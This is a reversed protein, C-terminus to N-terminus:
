RIVLDNGRHTELRKGTRDLATVTVRWMGKGIGLAARDKPTLVLSHKTAGPGVKIGGLQYEIPKPIDSRTFILVATLEDEADGRNDVTFRLTFDEQADIVASMAPPGPLSLQFSGITLINGPYSGMREGAGDFASATVLWAGPGVGLERRKQANLSVVHKAGGPPVLLDRVYYEIGRTDGPRTFVLLATVPSQTDGDNSFEFPVDLTAERGITAPLSPRRPLTSKATGYSFPNGSLPEGAPLDREDYLAFTIAYRGPVVKAAAFDEATLVIHTTTVGPAVKLKFPREKTFTTAPPTFALLLNLPRTCTCPQDITVDATFTGDREIHATYAPTKTLSPMKCSRDGCPIGRPAEDPTSPTGPRPKSPQSSQDPEVPPKASAPVASGLGALLMVYALERRRMWRNYGTIERM